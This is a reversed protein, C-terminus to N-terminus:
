ATAATEEATNVAAEEAADTNLALIVAEEDMQVPLGMVKEM